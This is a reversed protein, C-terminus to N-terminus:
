CMALFSLLCLVAVRKRADTMSLLATMMTLVGTKPQATPNGRCPYLICAAHWSRLDGEIAGCVGTERMRRPGNRGAVAGAVDVICRRLM